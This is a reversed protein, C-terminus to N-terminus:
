FGDYCRYFDKRRRSRTRTMYSTFINGGGRGEGMAGQGRRVVYFFLQKTPNGDTTTPAPQETYFQFAFLLQFFIIDLSVVVFRLIRTDNDFPYYFHQAIEGGGDGGREGVHIHVDM